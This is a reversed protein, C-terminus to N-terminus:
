ISHNTGLIENLKGLLEQPSFPKQIFNTPLVSQNELAEEYDYGSMFLIKINPKMSLVQYALKKGNMGPMIIDTLLLDITEESSEWILKLATEGDAASLTRFGLEKLLKELLHRLVAEDEVILVTKTAIEVPEFTVEESQLVVPMEEIAPFFLAFITGSKADSQIRMYGANQKVIDRIVELELRNEQGPTKMESVSEFTSDNSIGAGSDSVTLAVYRGPPMNEISLAENKDLIVNSTTITIQGREPLVGHSNSTLHILAQDLQRYDAKIQWLEDQLNQVIEIDEGLFPMLINQLHNVLINLNLASHEVKQTHTFALLQKTLRAGQHVANKIEEIEQRISSGTEAQQLALHGNGSIVVFLNNLDHAVGMALRGVAELKQLSVIEEQLRKNDSLDKILWFIHSAKSQSDCNIKLDLSAPFSNGAQSQAKIQWDSIFAWEGDVLKTLRARFRQHEEEALLCLISKGKLLSASTNFM